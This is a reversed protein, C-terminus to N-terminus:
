LRGGGVWMQGEKDVWMANEKGDKGDNRHM